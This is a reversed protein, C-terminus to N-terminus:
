DRNWKRGALRPQFDDRGALKAIASMAKLCLEGLIGSEQERSYYPSLDLPEGFRVRVRATMLFPSIVTGAYPAGEIYCPLIPVRAKLAVLIAGPRGPLMFENTHNIHGEPFMGILEGQSASRIALKTAATDNGRRNTPIAHTARLFWGFAPHECYERAVMWRVYRNVVIQIFFPDVSTRHNCVIVAGQGPPLPFPPVQTRWLVRTLLLTVFYVTAQWMGYPSRWCWALAYAVVAAALLVWFVKAAAEHDMGQEDNTPLNQGGAHGAPM